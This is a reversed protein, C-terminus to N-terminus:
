KKIKMKVSIIGIVSVILFFITVQFPFGVINYLEPPIESFVGPVCHFYTNNYLLIFAQAFDIKDESTYEILDNDFDWTNTVKETESINLPYSRSSIRSETYNENEDFEPYIFIPNIRIEWEHTNNNIDPSKEICETICQGYVHNIKTNRWFNECNILYTAEEIYLTIDYEFHNIDEVWIPPHFLYEHSERKLYQGFGRENSAVNYEFYIIPVPTSFNFMGSINIQQNANLTFSNYSFNFFIHNEYLWFFSIGFNYSNTENLSNECRFDYELQYNYISSNTENQIENEYLEVMPNILLDDLECDLYHTSFILENQTASVPSFYITSINIILFFLFLIKWIKKRINVTNKM